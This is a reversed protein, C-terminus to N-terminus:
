NTASVAVFRLYKSEQNLAKKHGWTDGRQQRKCHGM